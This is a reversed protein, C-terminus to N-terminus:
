IAGVVGVGAVGQPHRGCPDREGPHRTHAAQPPWGSAWSERFGRRGCVLGWLGPTATEVSNGAPDGFSFFRGGTPWEIEKKIVVRCAALRWLWEHQDEARVGIASHGVGRSEHVPLMDGRLTAEHDFALVVGHGAGEGIVELGPLGQYFAESANLDGVYSATEVIAEFEIM